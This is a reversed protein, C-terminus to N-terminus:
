SEEFEPTVFNPKKFSIRSIAKSGQSSLPLCMAFAKLPLSVTKCALRSIAKCGQLSLPIYTYTLAFEGKKTISYHYEDLNLYFHLCLLSTKMESNNKHPDRKLFAFEIISMEFLLEKTRTM